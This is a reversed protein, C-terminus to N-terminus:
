KSSPKSGKSADEKEKEQNLRIQQSTLPLVNSPNSSAEDVLNKIDVPRGAKKGKRKRPVDDDDNTQEKKRQARAIPFMELKLAHLKLEFSIFQRRILGSIIELFLGKDKLLTLENERALVKTIEENTVAQKNKNSSTV